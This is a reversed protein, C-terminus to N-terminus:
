ACNPYRAAYAMNLCSRAMYRRASPFFLYEWLVAETLVARSVARASSARCLSSGYPLPYASARVASWSSIFVRVVWRRSMEPRVAMCLASVHSRSVLAKKRCNLAALEVCYMASIIVVGLQSWGSTLPGTVESGCCTRASIALYQCCRNLRM